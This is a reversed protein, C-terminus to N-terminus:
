EARSPGTEQSQMAQNIAYPRVPQQAVALLVDCGLLVARVLQTGQHLPYFAPVEAMRTGRLCRARM